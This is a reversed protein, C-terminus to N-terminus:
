KLRQGPVENKKKQHYTRVLLLVADFPSSACVWCLLVDVECAEVRAWIAGLDFWNMASPSLRSLGQVGAGSGGVVIGRERKCEKM